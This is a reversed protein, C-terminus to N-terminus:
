KQTLKLRDLRAVFAKNTTNVALVGVQLLCASALVLLPVHRRSM